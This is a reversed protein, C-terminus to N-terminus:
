LHRLSQLESTHEESRSAGEFHLDVAEGRYEETLDEEDAGEGGDVAEAVPRVGLVHTVAALQAEEVAHEGGAHAKQHDRAVDHESRFLTTYPLPTPERT